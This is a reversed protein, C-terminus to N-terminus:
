LPLALGRGGWDHEETVRGCNDLVYLYSEGQPNIVETLQLTDKDYRYQGATAKVTRERWRCILRATNWQGSLATATRGPWCTATATTASDKRAPELM